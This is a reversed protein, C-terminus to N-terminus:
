RPRTAVTGCDGCPYDPAPSRPPPWVIDEASTTGEFQPKAFYFGQMFRAGAERLATVEGLREVGEVVIKIGIETGLAIISAAIALRVRDKDCDKILARDLKIIDPKLIALRSLGSYGTSFDDLAIQFGHRRYENIISLIHDNDKIEETEIFEFTLRGLQFGNRRATELTLRICAKPEYVANPLFNINLRCGIKLKSAMEIAKVRCAQDFAYRNIESVQGLVIQAGEGAPGRVLAEYADVKNEVLDVIPQFAMTFPFVVGTETCASCKRSKNMVTAGFLATVRM